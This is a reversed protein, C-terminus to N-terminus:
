FLAEQMAEAETQTQTEGEREQGEEQGGQTEAAETQQAETQPAATEEPQVEEMVQPEVTETVTLAELDKIAQVVAQNESTVGDKLVKVIEKVKEQFIDFKKKLEGSDQTGTTVSTGIKRPRGVPRGRGRKPKMILRSIVGGIKPPRGRGRKMGPAVAAVNEGGVPAVSVISSPDVVRRPRGRRRAGNAVYPYVSATSSVSKPKRQRGAARRGPPRGRRKMIGAMVSAQVIPATAPAASGNKRPRGPGRKASETVPTPVPVPSQVQQQEWIPQGNAQVQNTPPLQQLPQPQSEPKPKPPRGRGRKLPQSASGSAMPDNNSSHLIESRPVDLGQAAAAAAVAVSAPPTSSGAIKYSKKVMSLVGSTKLTKLHHTLLAAHASTLGTYCREIYRSIAMKSSGDPENLAAIAACIMESYPPHPMSVHPSLQFMQPQPIQTQTQPQPQFVVHNNYPNPGLPHHNSTPFHPFPTFQPPHHPDGLSPDM